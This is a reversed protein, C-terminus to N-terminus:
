IREDPHFGNATGSGAHKTRKSQIRAPCTVSPRASPAPPPAVRRAVLPCSFPCGLFCLIRGEKEGEKREGAGFVGIIRDSRKEASIGFGSVYSLPCRTKMPWINSHMVSHRPCSEKKAYFERTRTLFFNSELACSRCLVKNM